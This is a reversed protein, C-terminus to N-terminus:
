QGLEVTAPWNPTLPDYAERLAEIVQDTPFYALGGECRWGYLHGSSSFASPLGKLVEEITPVKEQNPM